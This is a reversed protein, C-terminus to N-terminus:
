VKKKMRLGIYKGAFYAIIVLLFSFKQLLESYGFQHILLFVIGACIIFIIDYYPINKM